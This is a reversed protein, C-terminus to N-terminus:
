AGDLDRTDLDQGTARDWAQTLEVYDSDIGIGGDYAAYARRVQAFRREREYRDVLRSLFVAATVGEEAAIDAIRQRLPQPVKITTLPAKASTEAAM